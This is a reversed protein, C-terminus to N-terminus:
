KVFNLVVPCICAVFGLILLIGAIIWGAGLNGGGAVSTLCFALIGAVLLLVAVLAKVGVIAIDPLKVKVLPLVVAAIGGLLAILLLIWATLAAGNPEANETGFIAKVGSLEVTVGFITGSIAITAMMLIFAVLAFLLGGAFILLGYEKLKKM